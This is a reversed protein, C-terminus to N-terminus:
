IPTVRVTLVAAQGAEVRELCRAIAAPVQEPETVREGHAGFAKGVEELRRV